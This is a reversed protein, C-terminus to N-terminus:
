NGWCLLSCIDNGLVSLRTTKLSKLRGGRYVLYECKQSTVPHLNTTVLTESCCIPKIKLPWAQGKVHRGLNRYIVALRDQTVDLFLSCRLRTNKFMLFKTEPFVNGEDGPELYPVRQCRDRLRHSTGFHLSTIQFNEM